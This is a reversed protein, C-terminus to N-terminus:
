GSYRRIYNSDDSIMAHMDRSRTKSELSMCRLHM